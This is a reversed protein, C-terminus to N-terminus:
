NFVVTSDFPFTFTYAKHQSSEREGGGEPTKEKGKEKKEENKLSEMWKQDGWRKRM